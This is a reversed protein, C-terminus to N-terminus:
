PILGKALKWVEATCRGAAERRGTDVFLGSDRASRVIAENESWTKILMEGVGLKIAPENVTLTSWPGEDPHVLDIRRRMSSFPARAAYYSVEFLLEVEGAEPDVHKMTLRSLRRM